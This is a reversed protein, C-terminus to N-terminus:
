PVDIAKTGTTVKIQPLPYREYRTGYLDEVKWEQDEFNQSRLFLILNQTTLQDLVQKTSEVDFEEYLYNVRLIDQIPYDKMKKSLTYVYNIIKSSKEKYHFDLQNIQQLDKYIYDQFGKRKVVEIYELVSALVQEWNNFGNETLELQLYLEEYQDNLENTGACLEVVLGLNRLYSTLSFKGEYGLIHTLYSDIKKKYHSKKITWSLYLENEDKVSLVRYFVSGVGEFPNDEHRIHSIDKRPIGEMMECIPGMVEESDVYVVLKMLHSSYHADYFAILQERIDPIKLTELNGTGFTNLSGKALKRYIRRTISM